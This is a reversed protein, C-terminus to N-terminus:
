QGKQASRAQAVAARLYGNVAEIVETHDRYGDADWALVVQVVARQLDRDDRMKTLAAVAKDLQVQVEAREERARSAHALAARFKDEAAILEDAQMAIVTRAEDIRISGVLMSAADDAQLPRARVLAAIGPLDRLLIHRLEDLRDPPVHGREGYSPYQSPM